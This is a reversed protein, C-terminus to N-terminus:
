DDFRDRWDEIREERRERRDDMRDEYDERRDEVWDEYDERRDELDERYDDWDDRDYYVRDRYRPGYNYRHGYYPLSRPYRAYGRYNSYYRTPAPAYYFEFRPRRYVRVARRPAYDDYGSYYVRPQAEATSAAFGLGLLLVVNALLLAM